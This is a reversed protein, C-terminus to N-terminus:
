GTRASKKITPDLKGLTDFSPCISRLVCQSCRPRQAKCIKRGHEIVLIHFVYIDNAETMNELLRHAQEFSANSDILELRKSVRFIHTDVPLAPMGLSFLLVCNATKMGVGPLEILWNRAEELTLDKLFDLEIQGRERRIDALVQKIYRAKVQGLGGAKISDAIEYTSADAISQWAGFTSILSAFASHSNNDSTNQSLITQVLMAVPNGDAHWERNGYEKILLQLIQKILGDNM